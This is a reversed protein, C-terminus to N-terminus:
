AVREARMRIEHDWRKGCTGAHLDRCEDTWDTATKATPTDEYEDMWRGKNLFTAPHCFDCYEPKNAKYREVGDLIEVASALARAKGYAKLADLKGIRRPYAQWFAAFDESM